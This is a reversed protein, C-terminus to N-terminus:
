IQQIIKRLYAEDWGARLRKNALGVKLSKEQKLLNLAIRRVTAMNEPAHGKRIRSADESFAVDLVWHMQNEIHWHCRVAKMLCEAEAGLSTIFLRRKLSTKEGLTREAEVLLVSRLDAWGETDLLGREGIELAYGRRQEIRGHEGDLTQHHACGLYDQAALREFLHEVEDHLGEQNDKLSLVYDAGQDRIQEAIARQCGAADITVICGTLNLVALLRPITSIENANDDIKVQGLVLHNEAAWAGVMKIAAKKSAQDYSRRLHKGDIAVVEGETLDAIGRVWDLFGQEFAQPDIRALVDGITDHSPIGNPLKLFRKLWDHKARGFQEVAVFTDAGCIVACITLALIDELLHLKTREVRPDEIHAFCDTLSFSCEAM